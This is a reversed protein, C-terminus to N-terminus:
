GTGSPSVPVLMYRVTEAARSASARPGALSGPQGEAVAIATSARAASSPARPLEPTIRLWISRAEHALEGAGRGGVLGASVIAAAM